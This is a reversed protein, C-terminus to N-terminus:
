SFPSGSRGCCAVRGPRPSGVAPATSSPTLTPTAASSAAAAPSAGDASASATHTGPLADVAGRLTSKWDRPKEGSEAPTKNLAQSALGTLRDFMSM